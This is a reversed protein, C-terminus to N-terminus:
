SNELLPTAWTPSCAQIRNESFNVMNQEYEEVSQAAPIVIAFCFEGTRKDDRASLGLEVWGM